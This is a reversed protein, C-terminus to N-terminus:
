RKIISNHRFYLQRMINRQACCPIYAKNWIKIVARATALALKQASYKGAEQQKLWLYHGLAQLETPLRNQPLELVLPVNLKSRM